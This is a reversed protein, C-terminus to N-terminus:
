GVRATCRLGLEDVTLDFQSDWDGAFYVRLSVPTLAKQSILQDLGKLFPVPSITDGYFSGTYSIVVQADPQVAESIDPTDAFDDSEFGAYPITTFKSQAHPFRLSIDEPTGDGRQVIADAQRVITKELLRNLREPGRRGYAYSVIPDRIEAVWPKGTLKHLVLGTLHLTVPNNMTLLVDVSHALRVGERLASPMWRLYGKPVFLLDFLGPATSENVDMSRNKDHRLSPWISQFLYTTRHIETDALEDLLGEDLETNPPIAPALVVTQWGFRSFYKARKAMKESTGGMQPPFIASILLVRQV